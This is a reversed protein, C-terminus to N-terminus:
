HDTDPSWCILSPATKRINCRRRRSANARCRGARITLFPEASSFLGDGRDGVSFRRKGYPPYCDGDWKLTRKVGLLPCRFETEFHESQALLPCQLSDSERQFGRNFILGDCQFSSKARWDKRTGTSASTM